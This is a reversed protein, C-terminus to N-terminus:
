IEDERQMFWDEAEMYDAFELDKALNRLLEADTPGHYRSVSTIAPANDDKKRRRLLLLAILLLIFLCGLGVAIWTVIDTYTLKRIPEPEEELVQTVVENPIREGHVLLRHSNIGIPTCTILTVLDKGPQIALSDIEDPLVVEIDYVRYTLTLGLIGIQFTNGKQLTDLHTFMEANPLGCHASIASHTDPGGVPLSTHPIHGAGIALVENTTTHFIPLTVNLKPITVYGIEPNDTPLKMYMADVDYRDPDFPETLIVGATLLAENYERAGQLLSSLREPDITDVAEQYEVQVQLASKQYLWSAVFPYSFIGVGLIFLVVALLLPSFKKM